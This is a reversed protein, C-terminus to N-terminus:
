VQNTIANRRQKICLIRVVFELFCFLVVQQKQMLNQTTECLLEPADRLKRQKVCCSLTLWAIKLQKHYVTSCFHFLSRNSLCYICKISSNFPIRNAVSTNSIENANHITNITSIIEARVMIAM